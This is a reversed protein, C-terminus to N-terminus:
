TDTVQCHLAWWTYPNRVDSHGRIRGTGDVGYIAVQQDLQYYDGVDKM